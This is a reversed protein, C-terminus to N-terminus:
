EKPDLLPPRGRLSVHLRLEDRRSLVHESCVSHLEADALIESRIRCRRFATFAAEVCGSGRARQRM